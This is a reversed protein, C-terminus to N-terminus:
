AALAPECERSLAFEIQRALGDELPTSPVFGLDAAARASDACTAAADGRAAAEFELELPREVLSGIVRLAHILRVSSGGGINYVQGARGREAALLTATVVDEVFTFDRTQRGTGYVTIPRGDIAADIFRCFAMDPRQRPGYVTFYRLGVINMGQSRYYMDALSETTVKTIGYPSVPQLAVDEPTPMREATGYVSSSSAYVVTTLPCAVAAELLRQTAVVNDHVYASFDAGFSTRVGPRGALHFITDVGELHASFDDSALDVAHMSFADYDDLRALNALKLQPSYYDTFGDLGVVECGQRLLRESLTSGIFGACGTVLARRPSTDHM